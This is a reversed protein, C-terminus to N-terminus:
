KKDESEKWPEPLPMWAIVNVLCEDSSEACFGTDCSIDKYVYGVIMDGYISCCLVEGEPKQESVPIWQQASPLHKLVKLAEGIGSAKYVADIADSRKILDNM